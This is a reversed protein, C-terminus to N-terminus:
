DNTLQRGAFLKVAHATVQKRGLAQAESAPLHMVYSSHSCILASGCTISNKGVTCSAHLLGLRKHHPHLLLHCIFTVAVERHFSKIVLANMPNM